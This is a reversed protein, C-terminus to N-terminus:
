RSVSPVRRKPKRYRARAREVNERHQKQTRATSWTGFENVARTIRASFDERETTTATPLFRQKM